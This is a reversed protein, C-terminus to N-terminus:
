DLLTRPSADSSVSALLPRTQTDGSLAGGPLAPRPRCLRRLLRVPLRQYRRHPPQALRVGQVARRGAVIKKIGRQGRWRVDLRTQFHRPSARLETLQGHIDGFVKAPAPVELCCPEARLLNQVCSLLTLWEEGSLLAFPAGPEPPTYDDDLLLAAIVAHALELATSVHVESAQSASIARALGGSSDTM